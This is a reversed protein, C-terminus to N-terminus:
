APKSFRRNIWIDNQWDTYGLLKGEAREHDASWAGTGMKQRLELMAEIRWEESPTAYLIVHIPVSKGCLEVYDCRVFVGRAVHRDFIRLYRLVTDPFHGYADSFV